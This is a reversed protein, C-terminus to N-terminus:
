SPREDLDSFVGAVYNTQLRQGAAYPLPTSFTLGPERNCGPSGTSELKLMLDLIGDGNV